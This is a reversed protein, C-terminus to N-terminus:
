EEVVIPEEEFRSGDEVLVWSHMETAHGKNVSMILFSYVPWAHDLDYQSPRAPVDPHSHYFGLVELDQERAYREARLLEEPRILFRNRKLEEERANSIPYIESVSKHGNNLFKGLLLGCCEHPYDHEGHEQIAEIHNPLLNLM